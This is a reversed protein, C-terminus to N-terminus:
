EKEVLINIPASVGFGLKVTVEYTGLYKIPEKLVIQHKDINFGKKKLGEAIDISTISGFLKNEEGVKVKFTLSTGKLREALKMASERERAEKTEIASKRLEIDKVRGKTSKVALGRPILYNRAYGEPVEKIDGSRGLGPVDKLLIVEM